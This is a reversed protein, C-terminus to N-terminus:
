NKRKLINYITILGRAHNWITLIRNEVTAKVKVDNRKVKSFTVTLRREVVM